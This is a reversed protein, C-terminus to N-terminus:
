VVVTKPKLTPGVAKIWTDAWSAVTTRGLRRDVYLGTEKSHEISVLFKEAQGKLRFTRSRGKGDPSRYRARWRGNPQKEISAM